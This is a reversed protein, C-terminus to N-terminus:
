WERKRGMDIHMFTRYRLGFGKFGVREAEARLKTKDMGRLAVDFAHGALHSSKPAGGVTANHYPSRYASSLYIPAGLSMRLQDLAMLAEAHILISGTGKCAIENPKFFKCPWMRAPVESWKAYHMGSV